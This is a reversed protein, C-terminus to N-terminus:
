QGASVESLLGGAGSGEVPVKRSRRYFGLVDSFRERLALTTLSDSKNSGPSIRM